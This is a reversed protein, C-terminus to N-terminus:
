ARDDLLVIGPLRDVQRAGALTVESENTREFPWANSRAMHEAIDLPSKRDITVEDGHSMSMTANEPVSETDITM